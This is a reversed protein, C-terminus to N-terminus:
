HNMGNIAAVFVSWMVVNRYMKPREIVFLRGIAKAERVVALVVRAKKAIHSKRSGSLVGV